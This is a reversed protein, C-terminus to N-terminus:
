PHVSLDCAFCTFKELAEDRHDFNGYEQGCCEAHSSVLMM